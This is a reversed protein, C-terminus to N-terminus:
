RTTGGGLAQASGPRERAMEQRVTVHIVDVGVVHQARAALKCGLVCGEHLAHPEAVLAADVGGCQLAHDGPERLLETAEALVVRLLQEHEQQVADVFVEVPHLLLLVHLRLFRVAAWIGHDSRRRPLLVEEAVATHHHVAQMALQLALDHARVAISHRHREIGEADQGDRQGLVFDAM